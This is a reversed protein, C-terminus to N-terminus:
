ALLGYAKAKDEFDQLRIQLNAIVSMVTNAEDKDKFSFGQSGDGAVDVFDQLAYDSVTPATHTVTTLQSTLGNQKTHRYTREM